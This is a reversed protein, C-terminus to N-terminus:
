VLLVGLKLSSIFDVSFKGSSHFRHIGGSLQIHPNPFTTLAPCVMYLFIIFYFQSPNKLSEILIQSWQPLFFHSEGGVCKVLKSLYTLVYKKQQNLGVGFELSFAKQLCSSCLFHLLQCKTQTIEQKM